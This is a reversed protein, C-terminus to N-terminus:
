GGREAVEEDFVVDDRPQPRVAEESQKLIESTGAESEAKSNSLFAELVEDDM